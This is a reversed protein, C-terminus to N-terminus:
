CPSTGRLMCTVLNLFCQDNIQVSQLLLYCRQKKEM